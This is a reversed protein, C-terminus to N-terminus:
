CLLREVHGLRGHWLGAQVQDGATCACSLRAQQGLRQRRVHTAALACDQEHGFLMRKFRLPAHRFRRAPQKADLHQAKLAKRLTEELRRAVPSRKEGRLSHAHDHPPRGQVPLLLQAGKGAHRAPRPKGCLDGREDGGALLGADRRLHEERRRVCQRRARQQGVLEVIRRQQVGVDFGIQVAAVERLVIKVGGGGRQQGARKHVPHRDIEVAQGGDRPLHEGKEFREEGHHLAHGDRQRDVIARRIRVHEPGIRLGPVRQAVHGGPQMQRQKLAAQRAAARRVGGKGMQLPAQEGVRVLRIPRGSGGYGHEAGVAAGGLHAGHAVGHKGKRAAAHTVAVHGHEHGVHVGIAARQLAYAGGAANRQEQVRAPRHAVVRRRPQQQAGHTGHRATKGRGVQEIKDFGSVGADRMFIRFQKFVMHQPIAHAVAAKEGGKGASFLRGRRLGHPLRRRPRQECQALAQGPRRRSVLRAGAVVIEYCEVHAALQFAAGVAQEFGPADWLRFFM